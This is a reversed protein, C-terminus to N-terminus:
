FANTIHTINDGDIGIVDFRCMIDSKKYRTTVYFEAVKRITIQKKKNVAEISYGYKNSSRYKVEVFVLCMDKKAIIDIEGIKCRFNNELIKYGNNELYLCAMEEKEQGLQRKNIM